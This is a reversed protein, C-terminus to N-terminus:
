YNEECFFFRLAKHYIKTDSEYLETETKRIFNKEKLLKKVQDVLKKYNSKSWVDVQIYHGVTIEENDAFVEGQELYEHFTIYTTESGNYVQFSVPVNTSKLTDIILKNINM